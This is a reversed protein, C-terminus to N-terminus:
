LLLLVSQLIYVLSSHVFGLSADVSSTALTANTNRVCRQLFICFLHWEAHNPDQKDSTAISRTLYIVPIYKQLQQHNLINAKITM